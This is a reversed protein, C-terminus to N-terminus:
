TKRREKKKKTKRMILVWKKAYDRTIKKERKQDTLAITM